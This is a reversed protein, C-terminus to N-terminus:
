DQKFDRVKVIFPAGYLTQKNPHTGIVQVYHNGNYLTQEERVYKSGSSLEKDPEEAKGRPQNACRSEYGANSVIFKFDYGSYFTSKNVEFRLFTEKNVAEGSSLVDSTGKIHCSMSLAPSGFYGVTLNLSPSHSSASKEYSSEVLQEIDWDSKENTLYYEVLEEDDTLLVEYLTRIFKRIIQFEYETHIDMINNGNPNAPDYVKTVGIEDFKKVFQIVKEVLSADEPFCSEVVDIAFLELFFSKFKFGHTQRLLKILRVVQKSNSSRVKDIQKEPNSKLRTGDKNCYLYVDKDDGGSSYKGPVVDVSIDEWVEYGKGYVNIASNKKEFLYGAEHLASAVEDYIDAVNMSFDDDFYVLLDVDCSNSNAAGKALSGGYRYNPKESFHANIAKEIPERLTNRFSDWLKSDVQYKLLLEKLFKDTLM